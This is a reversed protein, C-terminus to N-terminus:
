LQKSFSQLHQITCCMWRVLELKCSNGKLYRVTEQIICYVLDVDVNDVNLKNFLMDIYDAVTATQKTSETRDTSCWQHCSINCKDAEAEYLDEILDINDEHGDLLLNFKKILFDTLPKTGPCTPCLHLM